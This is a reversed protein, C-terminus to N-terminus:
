NVTFPGILLSEERSDPGVLIQFEGPEIIREGRTNVLTMASVPLVLDVVKEEGPALEVQRYGKLERNAWTVSFVVDRLYAQVTEVM